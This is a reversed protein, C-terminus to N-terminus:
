GDVKIELWFRNQRAWDITQRVGEELSTSAEWNLLRRIKSVDPVRRDIDEYVAGYKENTNIAQVGVSGDGAALVIGVADAITHETPNGVNFVEGLAAGHDGIIELAEVADDIYTFCRTQRGGDYVYPSDGNLMRHISQSVVYIPAQRPGYVNFFRTISFQFDETQRMAFLMHECVAKSTSYSWRDVSTAGLVRDDDERWPLKANRGYIESTSTFVLRAGTELCLAIINRTGLVSVEILSLPDEMYRRVGVVSALHYVLDIKRDALVRLQEDQRIDIQVYEFGNHDVADLLNIADAPAVFDLGVVRDGRALFRDVLNSGVFGNAGTILITKSM